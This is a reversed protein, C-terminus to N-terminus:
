AEETGIIHAVGQKDFYAMTGDSFCFQSRLGLPNTDMDYGDIEVPGAWTIMIRHKDDVYFTTNINTVHVFCNALNTIGSSTEVTVSPIVAAAKCDPTKNRICAAKKCPYENVVFSKKCNCDKNDM